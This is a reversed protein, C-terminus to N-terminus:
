VKPGIIVQCFGPTHGFQKCTVAGAESTCSCIMARREYLESKNLEEVLSANSRLQWLSANGSTLLQIVVVLQPVRGPPCTIICKLDRRVNAVLSAYVLRPTISQLDRLLVFHDKVAIIAHQM